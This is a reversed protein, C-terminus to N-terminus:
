ATVEGSLIFANTGIPLLTAVAYQYATKTANLAGNITVGGAGTVTIQGTGTQVLMTDFLTSLGTPVTLTIAAANTFLLIQSRDTESLTYTTGTITKYQSVGAPGQFGPGALVIQTDQQNILTPQVNSM